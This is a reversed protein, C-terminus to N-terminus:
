APTPSYTPEPSPSLSPEPSPSLSPSPSPSPSPETISKICGTITHYIDHDNVAWGTNIDLFFVDWFGNQGFKQQNWTNGGDATFLLGENDTTIWGHQSDTFCVSNMISNAWPAIADRQSVWNQGGDNSFFISGNNGVIWGYGTGQVNVFSM